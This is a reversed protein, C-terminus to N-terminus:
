STIKDLEDFINSDIDIDFKQAFHVSSALLNPLDEMLLIKSHSGGTSWDVYRQCDNKLKLHPANGLITQIYAEELYKLKSYHLIIANRQAHFDIIYM